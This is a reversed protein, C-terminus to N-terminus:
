YQMFEYAIHINSLVCIIYVSINIDILNVYLGLNSIIIHYSGSTIYAVTDNDRILIYCRFLLVTDRSLLPRM